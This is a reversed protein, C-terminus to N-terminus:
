VGYHVGVLLRAGAPQASGGALGNVQGRVYRMSPRGSAIVNTGASNTFATTTGQTNAAPPVVYWNTQDDSQQLMATDGQNFGSLKAVTVIATCRPAAGLDIVGGYATVGAALGSIDTLQSQVAPLTVTLAGGTITAGNDVPLRGASLTPLRTRLTEVAARLWGILTGSTAGDAPAAATTAGVATVLPGDSALTVPLSQAATAAGLASPWRALLAQMLGILGTGSAAAADSPAGIGRALWRLWAPVTGDAALSAPTANSPAGLAAAQAILADHESQTLGGSSGGGVGGGAAVNVLLNGASDYNM